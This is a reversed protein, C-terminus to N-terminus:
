DSFKRVPCLCFCFREWFRRKEESESSDGLSSTLKGYKEEDSVLSNESQYLKDPSDMIRNQINVLRQGILIHQNHKKASALRDMETKYQVYQEIYQNLRSKEDGHSKKEVSGLKIDHSLKGVYSNLKCIDYSPEGSKAADGEGRNGVRNDNAGSRLRTIEEWMTLKRLTAKQRKFIKRRFRKKRATDVTTNMVTVTYSGEDDSSGRVSNLSLVNRENSKRCSDKNSSSTTTCKKSPESSLSSEEDDRGSKTEIIVEPFLSGSNPSDYESDSETEFSLNLVNFEEESSHSVNLVKIEREALDVDKFEEENCQTQRTETFHKIAKNAFSKKKRQLNLEGKFLSDHIGVTTHYPVNGESVSAFRPTILRQCVKKTPPSYDSEFINTSSGSELNYNLSLPHITTLEYGKSRNVENSALKRFSSSHAKEPSDGHKVIEPENEVIETITCKQPGDETLEMMNLKRRVLNLQETYNCRMNYLDLDARSGESTGPTDEDNHFMIFM